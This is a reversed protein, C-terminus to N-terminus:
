LDFSLHIIEDVFLRVYDEKQQGDDIRLIDKAVQDTIIYIMRATIYCNVQQDRYRSRVFLEIIAILRDETESIVTQIQSNEKAIAASDEFFKNSDEARDLLPLLHTLLFESYASRSTLVSLQDILSQMVRCSEESYEELLSRYIDGKDQFYNYFNGISVGAHHAIEKTNTNYFGKNIFLTNAADVLKKRSEVTRKQVKKGAKM